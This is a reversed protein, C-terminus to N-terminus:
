EKNKKNVEALALAMNQICEDESIGLHEALVVVLGASFDALYVNLLSTDVANLGKLLLTLDAYYQQMRLQETDQKRAALASSVMSFGISVIEDTNKAEDLLRQADESLAKEIRKLRWKSIPGLKRPDSTM